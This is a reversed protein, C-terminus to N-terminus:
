RMAQWAAADPVTWHTDVCLAIGGSPATRLQGNECAGSLAERDLREREGVIRARVDAEKAALEAPTLGALAERPTPRMLQTWGFGVAAALLTAVVTTMLTNRSAGHALKSTTM